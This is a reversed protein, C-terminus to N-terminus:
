IASSRKDDKPSKIARLPEFQKGGRGAIIPRVADERGPGRPTWVGNPECNDFKEKAIAQQQVDM